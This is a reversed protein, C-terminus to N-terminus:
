QFNIRVLNKTEMDRIVRELTSFSSTLSKQVIGQAKTIMWTIMKYYTAISDVWGLGVKVRMM